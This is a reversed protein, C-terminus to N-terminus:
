RLGQLPGAPCGLQQTAPGPGEGRGELLQRGQLGGHGQKARGGGLLQRLGLSPRPGVGAGVGEPRAETAAKIVTSHTRRGAVSLVRLASTLSWTGLSKTGLFYCTNSLHQIRLEGLDHYATSQPQSAQSKPLWSIHLRRRRGSNVCQTEPDVTFGCDQGGALCLHM